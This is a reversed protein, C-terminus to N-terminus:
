QAPAPTAPAQTSPPPESASPSAPEPQATPATTSAPPTETTQEVRGPMLLVVAVIILVGIGILVNRNMLLEEPNWTGWLSLPAPSANKLWGDPKLFYAIMQTFPRTKGVVDM